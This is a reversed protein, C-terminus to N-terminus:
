QPCKEMTWASSFQRWSRIFLPTLYQASHELWILLIESLSSIHEPDPQNQLLTEYLCVTLYFNMQRQISNFVKTTTSKKDFVSPFIWVSDQLIDDGASNNLISFLYKKSVDSNLNFNPGSSALHGLSLFITRGESGTGNLMVTNLPPLDHCSGLLKTQNRKYWGTDFLNWPSLM